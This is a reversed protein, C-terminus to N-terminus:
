WKSKQWILEDHSGDHKGLFTAIKRIVLPTCFVLQLSLCSYLYTQQKWSHTLFWRSHFTTLLASVILGPYLFGSIKWKQFAQPVQSPSQPLIPRWIRWTLAALYDLLNKDSDFETFFMKPMGLEQAALNLRRWSHLFLNISGALALSNITLALPVIQWLGAIDIRIGSVQVSVGGSGSLLNWGWVLALVFSLGNVWRSQAKSLAKFNELIIEFGKRKQEASEAELTKKLEELDNM